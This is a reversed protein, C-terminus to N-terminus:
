AADEVATLAEARPEYVRYLAAIMAERSMEAQPAFRSGDGAMVGEATVQAVADVAWDHIEAADTYYVQGDEVSVGDLMAMLRALVVAAQERTVLEDPSFTTESTGNMLGVAQCRLISLFDPCEGIDTFASDVSLTGWGVTKTVFQDCLRALEARTIGQQFNECLSVPLLQALYYATVEDFAWDSAARLDVVYAPVQAAIVGRDDAASATIVANGLGDALARGDSTVQLLAPDSSTWQIEAEMGEPLVAELQVEVGARIALNGVNSGNVVVTVRPLQWSEEAMPHADTYADTTYPSFRTHGFFDAESKLFYDWDMAGGIEDAADWTTDLNYWVGDLEVINWAHNEQQSVGTVIRCPIGATWMVRYTLLAYGQCVMSGTTLGDYASFKTQSEDYTYHTCIYEYLLKAKTYDDEESLDFSDVIAQARRDVEAIEEATALYDIDFYYAGNLWGMQGEAVNLAAYDANNPSDGSRASMTRLTTGLATDGPLGLDEKDGTYAISFNATQNELLEELAAYFADATDAEADAAAAGVALIAALALLLALRHLMRKCTKM